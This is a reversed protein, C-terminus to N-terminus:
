KKQNIKKLLVEFDFFDNIKLDIKTKSFGNYQDSIRGVFTIDAM